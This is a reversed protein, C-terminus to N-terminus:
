PSPADRVLRMMLHPNNVEAIWFSAENFDFGFIHPIHDEPEKWDPGTYRTPTSSWYAHSDTDHPGFVATNVAPKICSWEVLSFLEKINPLRWDNRGAYGNGAVNMLEIQSLADNWPQTSPLGGCGASSWAQGLPCVMWMLGTSVDTVTGDGHDIFRASPTSARMQENCIQEALAPSSFSILLMVIIKRINITRM